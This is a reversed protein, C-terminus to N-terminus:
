GFAPCFYCSRLFGMCSCSPEWLDASHNRWNGGLFDGDLACNRAAEREEVAQLPWQWPGTQTLCDHSLVFRDQIPESQDRISKEIGWCCLLAKHNILDGSRSSQLLGALSDSGVWTIIKLAKTTKIPSIQRKLYYKKGGQLGQTFKKSKNPEKLGGKSPLFNRHAWPHSHETQGEMPARKNLGRWFGGKIRQWKQNTPTEEEVLVKKLGPKLHLPPKCINCQKYCVNRSSNLQFHQM